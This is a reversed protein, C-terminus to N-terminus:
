SFVFWPFTFTHGRSVSQKGFYREPLSRFAKGHRAEDRATEHVTDNRFEARRSIIAFSYNQM